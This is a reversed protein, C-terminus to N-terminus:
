IHAGPLTSITDPSNLSLGKSSVSWCIVYLMTNLCKAKKM